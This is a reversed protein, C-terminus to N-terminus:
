AIASPNRAFQKSMLLRWSKRWKAAGQIAQNASQKYSIASKRLKAEQDLQVQRQPENPEVTAQYAQLNAM